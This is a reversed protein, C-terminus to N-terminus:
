SKVLRNPMDSGDSSGEELADVNETVEVVPLGDSNDIAIEDHFRELIKV